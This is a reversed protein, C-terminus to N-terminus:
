KAPIFIEKRNPFFSDIKKKLRGNTNPKDVYVPIKKFDINKVSAIIEEKSHNQLTHEIFFTTIFKNWDEKNSWYHGIQNQAEVLTTIYALAVSFSYQEILRRTVDNRLMDDCIQLTKEIIKGGHAAPIGIAGANWMSYKATITIDGYTNNNIQQWMKKETKSQLKKWEGECLHMFANGNNLEELLASFNGFLFTDSDLYLIHQDKYKEWLHEIAKIKIRWFFDFEGRWEKLISDEIAILNVQTAISNYMEPKDTIVHIITEEKKQALFTYISFNSQIYHQTDNGFVIFLINM